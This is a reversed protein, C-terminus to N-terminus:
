ANTNKKRRGRTQIQNSGTSVTPQSQVVPEEKQELGNNVQNLEQSQIQDQKKKGQKKNVKEQTIFTELVNKIQSQNQKIEFFKKEQIEQFESWKQHFQQDQGINNNIQSSQFGINPVSFTPQSYNIPIFQNAYWYGLMPQGGINPRQNTFYPLSNPNDWGLNSYNPIISSINPQSNPTFPQTNLTLNQLYPTPSLNGLEKDDENTFQNANMYQMPYYDIKSEEKADNLSAEIKKLDQKVIENIALKKSKQSIQSYFFISRLKGGEIHDNLSAIVSLKKLTDQPDTGLNYSVILLPFNVKYTKKRISLAHYIRKSINIIHHLIELKLATIAVM